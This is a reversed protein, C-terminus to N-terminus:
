GQDKGALTRVLTAHGGATRRLLVVTAALTLFTAGLALTAIAALESRLGTRLSSFIYAPLTTSGSTSVFSAIVVDDLSFTFALLGGAVLAPAILPLTVDRFARIPTAGLDGAADELSPDLADVRARVILAVVASGFVSHGIVLRAFGWTLDIRVFFILYAVAVMIEPAVLIVLVIGMFPGRWRGPARALALGALGGLGISVVGAALAVRVSLWLASRIADNSLAAEFATLGFGDWNLLFRGANFSSVVVVGIPVYLFALVVISWTWLLRGTM